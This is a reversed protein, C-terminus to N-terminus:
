LFTGTISTSTFGPSSTFGSSGSTVSSDSLAVISTGAGCAPLILSSLTLTPSLTECPESSKISSAVLAVAVPTAAGAGAALVGATGREAGVGAAVLLVPAVAGALVVGYAPGFPWM